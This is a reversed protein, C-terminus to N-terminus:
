NATDWTITIPMLGQELRDVLHANVVRHIM